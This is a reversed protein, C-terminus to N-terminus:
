LQSFKFLIEAYICVYMCVRWVYMRSCHVRVILVYLRIVPQMRCEAPIVISRIQSPFKENFESFDYNFSITATEYACKM